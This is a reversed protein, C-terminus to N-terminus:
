ISSMLQAFQQRMCSLCAYRVPTPLLSQLDSFHMYEHVRGSKMERGFVCASNTSRECASGSECM